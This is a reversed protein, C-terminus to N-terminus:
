HMSLSNVTPGPLMNTLVGAPATSVTFITELFALYVKYRCNKCEVMFIEHEEQCLCADFHKFYQYDVNKEKLLLRSCHCILIKFM